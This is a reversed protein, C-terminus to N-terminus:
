RCTKDKPVKMHEQLEDNPDVAWRAHMVVRRVRFYNIAGLALFVVGCAILLWGIIVVTHDSIFKILAAGTAGMALATRVSAMMTRKNALSTRETSMVDRLLTKPDTEM